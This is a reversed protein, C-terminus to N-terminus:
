KISSVSPQPTLNAGWVDGDASQIDALATQFLSAWVQLRDDQRLYPAAQTLAGYLYADPYATLLWNTANTALPPIKQYYILEVVTGSILGLDLQLNGNISAFSSAQGGQGSPFNYNFTALADPSVQGLPEQTAIQVSIPQLMDAPATIYNATVTATVNAIMGSVRLRRNMQAEALTIFDPITSTLDSRNLYDAVSAKLGTYTGDLAM